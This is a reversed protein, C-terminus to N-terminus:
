EEFWRRAQHHSERGQGRLLRQGERCCYCKRVRSAVHRACRTVVWGGTLLALHSPHPTLLSFHSTLLSFHSTLLSSRVRRATPGRQVPTSPTWSAPRLGRLDVARASPSPAGCACHM